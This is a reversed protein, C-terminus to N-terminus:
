APAISPITTMYREVFTPTGSVPFARLTPNEPLRGKTTLTSGAASLTANAITFEAYDELGTSGIPTGWFKAYASIPVQGIMAQELQHDVYSSNFSVEFVRDANDPYDQRQGYNSGLGFITERPQTMSFSFAEIVRTLINGGLSFEVMMSSGNLKPRASQASVPQLANPYIFWEDGETLVDDEDDSVFMIQLPENRTGARSGDANRVDMWVNAIVPYDTAGYAAAGRGFEIDATGDLAGGGGVPVKFKFHDGDVTAAPFHGRLLVTGTFAADVAQAAPLRAYRDRLLLIDHSFTLHKNADVSATFQTVVGGSANWEKPNTEAGRWVGFNLSKIYHDPMTDALPDYRRLEYLYAGTAPNSVEYYDHHQARMQLYGESDPTGSINGGGEAKLIEQRGADGTPNINPDDEPPREFKLTESDFKPYVWDSGEVGEAREFSYRVIGEHGAM